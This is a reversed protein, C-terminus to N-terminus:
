PKPQVRQCVITWTIMGDARGPMRVATMMPMDREKPSASATWITTPLAAWIGWPSKVGAAVRVDTRVIPMPLSAMPVMNLSTRHDSAM